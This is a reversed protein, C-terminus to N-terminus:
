IEANERGSVYTSTPNQLRRAFKDSFQICVFNLHSELPFPHIFYKDTIKNCYTMMVM